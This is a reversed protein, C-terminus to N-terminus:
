YWQNVVVKRTFAPQNGVKIVLYYLGNNLQHIPIQLIAGSLKEISQEMYQKGLGDMIQITAKENAYKTLNIHILAKAPNPFVSIDQVNWDFQVQQVPTYDFSGDQYTQKIRYYNIGMKPNEDVEKFSQVTLDHANNQITKLPEFDIGNTSKEIVYQTNKYSTNTLWQLDVTRNNKYASFALLQVSRSSAQSNLAGGLTVMQNLGCIREAYNATYLVVDIIYNGAALGTFTQENGCDGNCRNVLDWGSNGNIQYLNVQAVPANIGAVKIRQSTTTFTLDDCSPNNGNTPEGVIIELQSGCIRETYNATYFDFVVLYKGNPLGGFTTNEGCDGNCQGNLQWSGNPQVLYLKLNTVPALNNVTIESGTSSVLVNGCSMNPGGGGSGSGGGAPGGGGSSGGVGGGDGGIPPAGNEICDCGNQGIQGNFEQNNEDVLTCPTGPPAQATGDPCTNAAMVECDCSNQGIQGNMVQGNGDTLTCPTGPPAQATGDPCTNAAMVECDCGNQGIQGNMVQGNGDTLTCPTGPPAQATGDPCQNTQIPTGACTCGDRQIVDNNTNANGDDCGTGPMQLAQGNACLNPTATGACTCGDAQIRDNRTNANGDDCATGPAQTAQGNPCTQPNNADMFVNPKVNNDPHRARNRIQNAQMTSFCTMCRDDVYDMFNNYSYNTGTIPNPLVGGQSDCPTTHEAYAQPPTDAFGDCDCNNTPCDPLQGTIGSNSPMGNQDSCFTHPLGFFHGLEHTVTTGGINTAYNTTCNMSGPFDPACNTTGVGFACSSIIMTNVTGQAPLDLTSANGTSAIGLTQNPIPAKVVINLYGKWAPLACLNYDPQNPNRADQGNPCANGGFLIAPQGDMLGSGAPHNQNAIVFNLCGGSSSTTGSAEMCLQGTFAQNLHAIQSNALNILCTRETANAPNYDYHIAVPITKIGGQCTTGDTRSQAQNMWEIRQRQFQEWSKAYEPENYLRNEHLRQSGCKPQAFSNGIFIFLFFVSLFYIKTM